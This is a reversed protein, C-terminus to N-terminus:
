CLPLLVNGEHPPSAFVGSLLGEFPISSFPIGRNWSKVQGGEVEGWEVEGGATNHFLDLWSSSTPKTGRVESFPMLSM